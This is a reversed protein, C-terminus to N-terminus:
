IKKVFKDMLLTEKLSEFESKELVHQNYLPTNVWDFGIPPGYMEQRRLEAAAAQEDEEQIAELNTQTKGKKGAQARKKIVSQVTGTKGLAAM